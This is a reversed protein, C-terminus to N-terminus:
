EVTTTDLMYGSRYATRILSKKGPTELKGRLRAIHVRIAEPSTESTCAWVREQLAEASFVQDPHRLLFELIAYEKPFLELPQGHKFARCAAPDLAIYGCELMSSNVKEPRRLLARIRASLERLDFPKTLYDDAGADLGSEKEDIGTKGTLVLIPTTGGRARFQKCLEVGTLHPMNWDLILVDFVSMQLLEQAALGDSACEVTYHQKRFHECIISVLNPDDEALLIKSMM